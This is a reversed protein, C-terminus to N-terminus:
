DRDSILHLGGDSVIKNARQFNWVTMQAISCESMVKSAHLGCLPWSSSPSSISRKSQSIFQPKYYQGIVLCYKSRREEM